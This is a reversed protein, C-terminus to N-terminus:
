RVEEDKTSTRLQGSIYSRKNSEVLLLKGLHTSSRVKIPKQMHRQAIFLHLAKKGENNKELQSAALSM